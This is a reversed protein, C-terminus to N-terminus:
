STSALRLASYYHYWRAIAPMPLTTSDQIPFNTHIDNLLEEKLEQQKSLSM